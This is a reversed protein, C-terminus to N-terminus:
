KGINGLVRVGRLTEGKEQRDERGWVEEGCESEEEISGEPVPAAAGVRPSRKRSRWCDREM